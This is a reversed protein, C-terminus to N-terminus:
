RRLMHDEEGRGRRRDIAPAPVAPTGRSPGLAAGLSPRVYAWPHCSWHGAVGGAVVNHLLYRAVRGVELRDTGGFYSPQWLPGSWGASWARRTSDAKFREVTAELDDTPTLLWHLHDPLLLAALTAPHERVLPFVNVALASRAFLPRGGDTRVTVRATM